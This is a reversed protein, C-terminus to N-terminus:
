GARESEKWPALRRELLRALATLGVGLLALTIVPVFLKATAFSNSFIIILSGLGGNFSTLFESVVMGVLARGIALRAGALDSQM